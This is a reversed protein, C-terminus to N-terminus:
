LICGRLKTRKRQSTLFYHGEEGITAKRESSSTTETAVTALRHFASRKLWTFWARAVTALAGGAGKGLQTHAALCYDCENAQGVTLAIAERTKAAFTGGALAASFALYGNAVAPSNAMTAIINPVGGMKKKVQDLVAKSEESATEHTVPQLRAM